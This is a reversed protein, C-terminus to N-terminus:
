LRSKEEMSMAMRVRAFDRPIQSIRDIELVWVGKGDSPWGYVMTTKQRTTSGILTAYRSEKSPWLTAGARLLLHCFDDEEKTDNSRYLIKTSSLSLSLMDLPDAQKTLMGGTSPYDYITCLYTGFETRDTTPLLPTPPCSVEWDDAAMATRRVFPLNEVSIPRIGEWLSATSASSLTLVLGDLNM